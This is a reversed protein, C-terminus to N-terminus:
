MTWLFRILVMRILHKLIVERRFILSLKVFQKAMKRKKNKKLACYTVKKKKCNPAAFTKFCFPKKLIFCCFM